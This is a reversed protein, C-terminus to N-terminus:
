RGQWDPTRRAFFAAVGEAVDATALLRQHAAHSRSWLEEEDGTVVGNIMSL